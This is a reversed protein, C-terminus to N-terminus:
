KNLNNLTLAAIVKNFTFNLTQLQLVSWNKASASYNPHGIEYGLLHCSTDFGMLKNKAKEHTRKLPNNTPQSSQSSFHGKFKTEVSLWRVYGNTVKLHGM